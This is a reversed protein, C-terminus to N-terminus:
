AYLHGQFFLPSGQHSLQYLIWRGLCSVCSVHTRDRPRYFGRSSFIAVWELIRVQLIGHVFSDPPSRDVPDCITLSSQSLMCVCGPAPPTQNDVRSGLSPQSGQFLRRRPTPSAWVYGRCFLNIQLISAMTKVTRTHTIFVAISTLILHNSPM